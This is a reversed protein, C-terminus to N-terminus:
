TEPSRTGPLDPRKASTKLGAVPTASFRTGSAEASSTSSTTATALAAQGAQAFVGGSRRARM